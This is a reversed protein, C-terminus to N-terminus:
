LSLAAKKEKKKKSTTFNEDKKGGKNDCWSVIMICYPHRQVQQLVKPSRKQKFTNLIIFFSTYGTLFLVRLINSTLRLHYMLIKKSRPTTVSGSNSYLSNTKTISKSPCCKNYWIILYFCSQKLLPALDPQGYKNM